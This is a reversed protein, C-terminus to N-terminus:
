RRYLTMLEVYDDNSILIKKQQTSYMVRRSRSKKILINFMNADFHKDSWPYLGCIKFADKISESKIQHKCFNQFFKQFYVRTIFDKFKEMIWTKYEYSVAIEFPQFIKNMYPYPTLLIIKLEKCLDIAECSLDIRQGDVFLIVPFAIGKKILNPHLINQIYKQFVEYTMRGGESLKDGSQVPNHMTGDAWCTIIVDSSAKDNRDLWDMNAVRRPDELIEFWGNEKLYKELHKHHRKLYEVCSNDDTEISIVSLNYNKSIESLWSAEGVNLGFLVKAESLVIFM